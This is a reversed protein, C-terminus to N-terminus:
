AKSEWNSSKPLNFDSFQNAGFVLCWHGALNTYLAWGLEQLSKYGQDVYELLPKSLWIFLSSDSDCEIQRNQCVFDPIKLKNLFLRIALMNNSEDVVADAFAFNPQILRYRERGLDFWEPLDALMDTESIHIKVPSIVVVIAQNEDKM